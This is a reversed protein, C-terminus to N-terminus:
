DDDFMDAYDSIEEETVRIDPSRRSGEAVTVFSGDEALYTKREATTPISAIADWLASLNGASLMEYATRLDISEEIPSFLWTKPDDVRSRLARFFHRLTLLRQLNSSSPVIAGSLWRQVTEREVPFIAGIERASLGSLDRVDRAVSASEPLAAEAASEDATANDVPIAYGIVVVGPTKTDIFKLGSYPNWQKAAREATGLCLAVIAPPVWPSSATTGCYAVPDTAGVCIDGYVVKPSQQVLEPWREKQWGAWEASLPANALAGV